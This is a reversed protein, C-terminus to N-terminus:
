PKPTPRSSAPCPSGSLRTTPGMTSALKSTYFETGGRGRPRHPPARDKLVPSREKICAALSPLTTKRKKRKKRKKLIADPRSSTIRSRQPFNRPFLYPPIIRNSAHTPIPLKHQALRDNSGIDTNLLGAGWPSKSLAKIIM